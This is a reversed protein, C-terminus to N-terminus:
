NLESIFGIVQGEETFYISNLFDDVEEFKIGPQKSMTRAIAQYSAVVRITRQQEPTLESITYMPQKTTPHLKM